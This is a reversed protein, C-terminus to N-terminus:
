VRGSTAGKTAAAAAAPAAPAAAKKALSSSNFAMSPLTADSPTGHKTELVVSVLTIVSSQIKVEVMGFRGLGTGITPCDARAALVTFKPAQSTPVSVPHYTCVVNVM